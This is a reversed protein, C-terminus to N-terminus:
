AKSTLIKELLSAVSSLAYAIVTDQAKFVDDGSPILIDSQRIIAAILTGKPLRAEKLKTELVEIPITHSGVDLNKSGIQITCSGSQAFAVVVTVVSHTEAPFDVRSRELYHSVADVM